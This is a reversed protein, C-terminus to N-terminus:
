VVVFQHVCRPVIFLANFNRPLLQVFKFERGADVVDDLAEDINDRAIESKDPHRFVGFLVFAGKGTHLTLTQERRM